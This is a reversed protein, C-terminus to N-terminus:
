GVIDVPTGVPVELLRRLEPTPVHVCGLSGAGGLRGLNNLGHIAVRWYVWNRGPPPVSLALAGIGYEPSAPTFRVIDDVSFQGAPTPTGAAGIVVPTSLAVRGDVILQLNRHPLSVRIEQVAARVSLHAPNAAIWGLRGGLAPVSVGLWDSGDLAYVTFARPQSGSDSRSDLQEVVPGGPSRHVEVSAGPRVQAISGAGAPPSGGHLAAKSASSSGPALQPADQLLQTFPVGLAPLGSAQHAPVSGSRPTPAGAPLAVSWGFAPAGPAVVVAIAAVILAARRAVRRRGAPPRHAAVSACVRALARRVSLRCPPM